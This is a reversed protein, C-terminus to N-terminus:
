HPRARLRPAPETGLAAAEPRGTARKLHERQWLRWVMFAVTLVNAILVLANPVNTRHVLHEIEFPVYIGGSLAALWEAWARDRWLGYAEALRVAAYAIALVFIMLYNANQLVDAYHLLMGPYRGNPNLGYHGILAWAMRRMDHHMLQVLGLAAALAAVGKVAEFIAIARLARREHSRYPDPIHASTDRM